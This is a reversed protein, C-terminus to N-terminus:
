RYAQWYSDVEKKWDADATDHAAADSVRPSSELETRDVVLHADRLLHGVAWYPIATTGNDMAVLVYAPEGRDRDPVLDSVKGIAVGQPSQILKGATIDRRRTVLAPSDGPNITQQSTQAPAAASWTAAATVLTLWITHAKTMQFFAAPPTGPFPLTM